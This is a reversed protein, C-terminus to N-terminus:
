FGLCCVGEAERERGGQAGQSAPGTGDGRGVSAGAGEGEGGQAAPYKRPQSDVRREEHDQPPRAVLHGLDGVEGLVQTLPQAHPCSDQAPVRQAPSTLSSAVKKSAGQARAAERSAKFRSGVPRQSDPCCSGSGEGGGEGGCDDQHRHDERAEVQVPEVADHDPGILDHIAARGLAFVLLLSADELSLPPAPRRCTTSTAFLSPYAPLADHELTHVMSTPPSLAPHKAPPPHPPPLKAEYNTRHM